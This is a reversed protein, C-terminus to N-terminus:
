ASFRLARSEGRFHIEWMHDPSLRVQTKRAKFALEVWEGHITMVLEAKSEWSPGQGLEPYAIRNYRRFVTVSPDDSSVRFEYHGPPIMTGAITVPRTFRATVADLRSAGVHAAVGLVVMTIPVLCQRINM